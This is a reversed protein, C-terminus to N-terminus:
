RAVGIPAFGDWFVPAIAAVVPWLAGSPGDQRRQGGRPSAGRGRRSAGGVEPRGQCAREPGIWSDLDSLPRVQGAAIAEDAEDLAEVEEGSLHGDGPEALDSILAFAEATVDEPLEDVFKHLRERTTM